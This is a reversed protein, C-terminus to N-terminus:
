RRAAAAREDPIGGVPPERLLWVPNSGAVLRGSRDRVEVRAFAPESNPIQAVVGGRVVPGIPIVQTTTGPSAEGPGADDVPGRVLLLTGGPPIGEVSIAVERVADDSVSVSGMPFSDDVILDLEGRFRRPDSFYCRGSRMAAQLARESRDPAWACTVFNNLRTLWSTGSHDDSSGIGTAFISNRSCADWVALHHEMGVNGYRRYAVELLDAGYLREAVLHAIESRTKSDQVAPPDIGSGTGFIHNYSAVGGAGHIATILERTIEPDDIVPLLPVGDYDPLGVAGGYWNLHRASLSV